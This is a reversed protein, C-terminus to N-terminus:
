RFARIRGIRSIEQDVVELLRQRADAENEPTLKDLPVPALEQQFPACQRTIGAIARSLGDNWSMSSVVDAITPQRGPGPEPRPEPELAMSALVLLLVQHDDVMELVTKDLSWM